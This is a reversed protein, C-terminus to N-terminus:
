HPLWLRLPVSLIQAHCCMQLGIAAPTILLCKYADDHITTCQLPSTWPNEQVAYLILSQVKYHKRTWRNGRRNRPVAGVRVSFKFELFQALLNKSGREVRSLKILITPWQAGVERM